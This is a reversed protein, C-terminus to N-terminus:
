KWIVRKRILNLPYMIKMQMSICFKSKRKEKREEVIPFNKLKHIKNKVTQKSVNETLSVNKGGKQYSTEVAEELIKAEADETMRAHSEFGMLQDLLYLREETEKHIFLTKRYYVVGLSTILSTKDKKVIKWNVKRKGSERLEEDMEELIESVISLGLNTVGKTIGYVFDAQNKPDEYFKEIAKELIKVGNESFQQISKIM